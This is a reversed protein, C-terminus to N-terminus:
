ALCHTLKKCLRLFGEIFLAVGQINFCLFDRAKTVKNLWQDHVKIRIIVNLLLVLVLSLLDERPSKQSQQRKAVQVVKVPVWIFSFSELFKIAVGFLLSIYQVLFVFLLVNVQLHILRILLHCYLGLFFLHNLSDIIMCGLGISVMRDSILLISLVLLIFHSLLLRSILLNVTFYLHSLIPVMIGSLTGRILKLKVKNM